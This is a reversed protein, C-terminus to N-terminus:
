PRDYGARSPTVTTHSRVSDINADEPQIEYTQQSPYYRYFREMNERTRKRDLFLSERLIAGIIIEEMKGMEKGFSMAEPSLIGQVGCVYAERTTIGIERQKQNLEKFYWNYIQEERPDTTQRAEQQMKTEKEPFEYTKEKLTIARHYAEAYLQERNDKLWEIDADKLCKIPLWRRNGTEDKLYQEQNTTMAFVCQRPFEKAAREYPPRYKDHQMTIVAKLRKAETRSLTEGESFEVIAKGAFIMFFDKNDPTFVTEIYWDGGLVALSTSKKMGQKGELVIVYDFKCGPEVIRKVLGKMWNSGVAHHYVNDEVGYVKELWNNLRPKEDWELSKLWAVPPSVRNKKVYYMIADEVAGIPVHEFHAYTRMLYMQVSTIDVRQLTDWKSKEFDSETVGTFLNDRFHGKLNEDACITRYVNEENVITVGKDTKLFETDSLPKSSERAAISDFITRVEKEELPEKFQQNLSLAFPWAEEEYESPRSIKLLKGIAKTMAVNRGDGEEMGKFSKLLSTTRSSARDKPANKQNGKPSGFLKVPFPAIPLAKEIKYTGKTRVKHKIYDCESPPAVVYGGDNRIDVNPFQPFTNATQQIEAAYEYYLHYGGTPTKVTYTEPFADLSVKKGETNLDIDVVTIGSVKGTIIGVNASPFKKWWAEIQDENAAVSSYKKWAPLLPLKNKRLPMVSYGRVAYEFAKGYLHNKM